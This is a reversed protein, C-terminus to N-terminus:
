QTHTMRRVLNAMAQGSPEVNSSWTPIFWSVPSRTSEEVMDFISTWPKALAVRDVDADVTRAIERRSRSIDM